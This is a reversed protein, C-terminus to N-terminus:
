SKKDLQVFDKLLTPIVYGKILPQNDSVDRIDISKKTKGYIQDMMDSLVKWDAKLISEALKREFLPAHEDKHIAIVEAEILTIMKELKGRATKSKTWCREM